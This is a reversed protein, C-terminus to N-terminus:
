REKKETYEEALTRLKDRAEDWSFFYSEQMSKLFRRKGSLTYFMHGKISKARIKSIIPDPVGKPHSVRYLTIESM